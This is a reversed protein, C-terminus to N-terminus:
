RSKSKWRGTSQMRFLMRYGEGTVFATPIVGIEFKEGGIGTM